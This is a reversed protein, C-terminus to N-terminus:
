KVANLFLSFSAHKTSPRFRAFLGQEIIARAPAPLGGHAGDWGRNAHNRRHCRKWGVSVEETDARLITDRAFLFVAAPSASAIEIGLVSAATIRCKWIRM